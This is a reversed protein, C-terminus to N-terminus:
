SDGSSFRTARSAANLSVTILLDSWNLPFFVVHLFFNVSLM